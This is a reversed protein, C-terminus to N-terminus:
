CLIEDLLKYRKRNKREMSETSEPREKEKLLKFLQGDIGVCPKRLIKNGKRKYTMNRRERFGATSRVRGFDSGADEEQITFCWDCVKNISEVSVNEYYARSCYQHQFRTLCKTCQFLYIQFGVDGCLSCEM